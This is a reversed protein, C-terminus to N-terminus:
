QKKVIVVRIEQSNRRKEVFISNGQSFCLLFVPHTRCDKEIHGGVRPSFRAGRPRRKIYIFSTKVSFVPYICIM